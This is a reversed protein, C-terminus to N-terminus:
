GQRPGCEALKRRLMLGFTRVVSLAEATMTRIRQEAPPGFPGIPDLCQFRRIIGQHSFMAICPTPRHLQRWFPAIVRQVGRAIQPANSAATSSCRHGERYHSSRSPRGSGYSGRRVSRFARFASQASSRARFLCRDNLLHCFKAPNQGVPAFQGQKQRGGRHPRHLGALTGLRAITQAAALPLFQAQDIVIM